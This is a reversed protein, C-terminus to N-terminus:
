MVVCCCGDNEHEERERQQQRIDRSSQTPILEVRAPQIRLPLQQLDYPLPDRQNKLEDLAARSGIGEHLLRELIAILRTRSNGHFYRDERFDRDRRYEMERRFDRDGRLERQRNDRPHPIEKCWYEIRDYQGRSLQNQILVSLTYSYSLRLHVNRATTHNM